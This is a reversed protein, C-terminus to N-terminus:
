KLYKKLFMGTYSKQKKVIEEPTGEAVIEGGGDGGGGGAGEEGISKVLEDEMGLAVM